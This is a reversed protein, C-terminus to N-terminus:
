EGETVGSVGQEEADSNFLLFMSCLKIVLKKAFPKM